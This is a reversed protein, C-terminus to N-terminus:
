LQAMGHPRSGNIFYKVDNHIYQTRNRLPM